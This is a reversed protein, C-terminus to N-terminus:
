IIGPLVVLADPTSAYLLALDAAHRTLAVRQNIMGKDSVEHADVSPAEDLLRLREIRESAGRGTNFARLRDALQQLIRRMAGDVYDFANGAYAGGHEEIAHPHYCSKLLASDGRDVGRAYNALVERIENRALMLQIKEDNAPQM